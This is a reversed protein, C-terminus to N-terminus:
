NVVSRTSRRREEPKPSGINRSTIKQDSDVREEAENGINKAFHKKFVENEAKFASKAIAIYM